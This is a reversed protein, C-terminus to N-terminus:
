CVKPNGRFSLTAHYSPIFIRCAHRSKWSDLHSVLEPSNSSSVRPHPARRPGELYRCSIHLPLSLSFRILIILHVEEPASFCSGVGSLSLNGRKWLLRLGSANRSRRPAEASKLFDRGSVFLADSYTRLTSLRGANGRGSNGFTWVLVSRLHRQYSTFSRSYSLRSPSKSRSVPLTHLPSFPHTGTWKEFAM